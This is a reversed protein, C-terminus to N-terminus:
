NKTNKREKASHANEKILLDKDLTLKEKLTKPIEKLKIVIIGELYM